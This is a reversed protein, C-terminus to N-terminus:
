PNGMLDEILAPFEVKTTVLFYCVRHTTLEEEGIAGYRALVKVPLRTSFVSPVIKLHYSRTFM